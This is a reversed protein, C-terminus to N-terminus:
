SYVEVNETRLNEICLYGNELGYSSLDVYYYIDEYGEIDENAKSEPIFWGKGSKICLYALEEISISDQNTYITQLEYGAGSWVYIKNDGKKLNVM